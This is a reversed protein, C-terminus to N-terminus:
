FGDPARKASHIILDPDVYFSLAVKAGSGAIVTRLGGGQVHDDIMQANQSVYKGFEERFAAAGFLGASEPPCEITVKIFDGAIDTM